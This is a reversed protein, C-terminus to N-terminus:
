RPKVQVENFHKLAMQLSAVHADFTVKDLENASGIVHPRDIILHLFGRGAQLLETLHNDAVM